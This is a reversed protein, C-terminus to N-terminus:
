GRQAAAEFVSRDGEEYLRRIAMYTVQWGGASRVLRHDYVGGVTWSRGDIWHTARVHSLTSAEDGAGSVSVNTIQHQTADFGSLTSRWQDVLDARETTNAAGGFLSTYDTVVEDALLAGVRDWDRVDTYLGVGTVAQTIAVQDDAPLTVANASGPPVMALMSAVVAGVVTVLGTVSGM